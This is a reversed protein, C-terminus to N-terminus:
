ASRASRLQLPIFAESVKSWNVRQRGLLDTIHSDISRWENEIDEQSAEGRDISRELTDLVDVSASGLHL